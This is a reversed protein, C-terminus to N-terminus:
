HSDIAPKVFAQISLFILALLGGFCVGLLHAQTLVTAGILQETQLAGFQYEWIMKCMVAVLIIWAIRQEQRKWIGVIACFVFLGHLIGSLGAYAFINPYLWHFSFSLLPPLILLLFVIVKKQIYPFLYFLCILVTVNLVYHVWGVHVWHGTWWRWPQSFFIDAQYILHTRFCQLVAFFLVLSFIFLVTQNKKLKEM